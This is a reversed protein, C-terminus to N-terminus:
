IGIVNWRGWNLPVIVAAHLFLCEVCCAYFLPSSLIGRL